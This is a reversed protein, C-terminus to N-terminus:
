PLKAYKEWEAVVDGVIGMGREAAAADSWEGGITKAGSMNIKTCSFVRMPVLVGAKTLEDMTAANILNSYVQGL